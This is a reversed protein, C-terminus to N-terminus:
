GRRAVLPYPRTYSPSVYQRDQERVKQAAPGPLQTRILPLGPDPSRKRSSAM